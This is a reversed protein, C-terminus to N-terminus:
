REEVFVRRMQRGVALLLGGASWAEADEICWGGAWERVRLRFLVWTGNGQELFSGSYEVHFDTTVSQYPATAALFFAPFMSDFLFLLGGADLPMDRMRIWCLMEAREAGSFAAPSHAIRYECHQSFHPWMGGPLQAEYCAEPDPAEPMKGPQHYPGSESRGYCLRGVIRFQGSQYARASLFCSSKSKRQVEIVIGIPGFAPSSIFQVSVVRPALDGLKFNAISAEVLLKALYGGNPNGTEPPAILPANSFTKSPTVEEIFDITPTRTSV